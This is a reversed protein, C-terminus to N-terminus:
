LSTNGVFPSTINENKGLLSFFTKNLRGILFLISTGRWETHCDFKEQSNQMKGNKALFRWLNFKGSRGREFIGMKGFIAMLEIEGILREWFNGDLSVKEVTGYSRMCSRFLVGCDHLVSITLDKCWYWFRVFKNEKKFVNWIETSIRARSLNCVQTIKEPWGFYGFKLDCLTPSFATM